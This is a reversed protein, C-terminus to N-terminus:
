WIFSKQSCHGVRLRMEKEGRGAEAGREEDAGGTLGTSGVRKFSFPEIEGHYANFIAKAEDELSDGDGSM